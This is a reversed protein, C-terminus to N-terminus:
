KKQLKLAKRLYTEPDHKVKAVCGECCLYVPHGDVLLKVPDGMGGLKEGSVPCVKQREILAKDDKGIAAEIVPLKAKATQGDQPPAADNQSCGFLCWGITGVLAVTALFINRANKFISMASLEKM